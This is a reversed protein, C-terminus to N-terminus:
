RESLKEVAPDTPNLERARALEEKAAAPEGSALQRALLLHAEFNDPERGIANGLDAIAAASEGERSEISARIVLPDADLPNWRASSRLEDLAAAPDTAAKAYADKLFRASLYLPIALLALVALLAAAGRRAPRTLSFEPDLIAPAAAAGLLFVAPATVGPYNWLWDYSAQTM